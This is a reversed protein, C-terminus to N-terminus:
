LCAWELFHLPPSWRFPFSLLLGMFSSWELSRQAPQVALLFGMGQVSGIIPLPLYSRLLGM